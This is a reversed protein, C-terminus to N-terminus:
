TNAYLRAVGYGFGLTTERDTIFKMEWNDPMKAWNGIIYDVNRRAADLAARNGFLEWDSVLGQIIFGMEHIDWLEKLRHDPAFYGTYGDPLQNRVIFDLIKEKRAVVDAEGSNWALHVAADALKGLGIFGGKSNRERFPRFFDKELDLKMFNGRVTLDFREGIAGAIKVPPTPAAATVGYMSAAAVVILLATKKM